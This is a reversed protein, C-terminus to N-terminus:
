RSAALLAPVGRSVEDYGQVLSNMAEHWSRQQAELYASQGMVARTSKNEILRTLQERYGAVEQEESLGEVDLLYGTRGDSVLDCVGEALLGAVPLGSAMAELVVQGFTETRSPFAFVDASAYASALEEGQLYGTFTVPLGTLEQLVETYAPGDGVLVLHCRRHDMLRYAQLLLRLNKEWSIRGVYLIVARTEPERRSQLWSMRLEASRRQPHFLTTDVGRPWIRLHQFGKTGLM